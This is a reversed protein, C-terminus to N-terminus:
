SVVTLAGVPLTADADVPELLVAGGTEVDPMALIEPIAQYRAFHYCWSNTPVFPNQAAMSSKSLQRGIRHCIESMRRRPGEQVCSRPARVNSCVSRRCSGTLEDKRISGSCLSLRRDDVRVEPWNRGNAVTLKPAARRADGAPRLGTGDFGGSQSGSRWRGEPRAHLDDHDSGM